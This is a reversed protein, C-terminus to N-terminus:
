SLWQDVAEDILVFANFLGDRKPTEANQRALTRYYIMHQIVYNLLYTILCLVLFGSLSM